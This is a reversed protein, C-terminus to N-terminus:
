ITNNRLVLTVRNSLFLGIKAIITVTLNTIESDGHITLVMGKADSLLDIINENYIEIYSIEVKYQWGEKRQEESSTLFFNICRPILGEMETGIQGGKFCRMSFNKRKRKFISQTFPSKKKGHMTHTKGLCTQGYALFVADHGDMVAQALSSIGMFVDHQTESQGFIQDFHFEDDRQAQAAEPRGIM